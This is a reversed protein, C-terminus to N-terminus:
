ARQTKVHTPAGAKFDSNVFPHPIDGIRSHAQPMTIDLEGRIQDLKALNVRRYMLAECVPCMGLLAGGTDSSPEYDAMDGAPSRPIRCRVCYIEGPRCPRKNKTRKTQLFDRLHRGLILTPRCDDCVPLGSKIWRRVTNPHLGYLRAVAEVTYTRHIKALRPNPLRKGVTLRADHQSARIAQRRPQCRRPQCDM